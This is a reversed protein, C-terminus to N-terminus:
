PQGSRFVFIELVRPLIQKWDSGLHDRCRLSRAHLAKDIADDTVIRKFQRIFRNAMTFFVGYRGHPLMKQDTGVLIFYIPM